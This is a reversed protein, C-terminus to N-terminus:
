QGKKKEPEVAYIKVRIISKPAIIDWEMAPITGTVSVAIGASFIMDRIHMTEQANKNRFTEQKVAGDEDQYFVVINHLLAM